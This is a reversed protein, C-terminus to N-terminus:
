TLDCPRKFVKPCHSCKANIDMPPEGKKRRAMSRKVGKEVTCPKLPRKQAPNTLYDDSSRKMKNPKTMKTSTKFSDFLLSSLLLVTHCVLRLRSTLMSLFPHLFPRLLLSAAAALRSNRRDDSMTAMIIM